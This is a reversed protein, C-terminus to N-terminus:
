QHRRATDRQSVSRRASTQRRTQRARPRLYTELAERVVQSLEPPHGNSRGQAFLTLRQLLGEDLRITLRPM